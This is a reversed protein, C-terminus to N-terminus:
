KIRISKKSSNFAAFYGLAGNSFNTNPNAPAASTNADGTIIDSLTTLYDYAKDDMSLLEINVTDGTKFFTTFLPADFYQGDRIKDDVLYTDFPKNQLTDNKTVLIRYFNKIGITDQFHTTMLILEEKGGGPGGPGGGFGNFKEYSLSDIQTHLPLQANAEFTKGDATVLLKYTSNAIANFNPLIYWGNGTSPVAYSTNQQDILKVEANNVDPPADTGFYSTTQTIKVKFDHNGEYLNAEIVYAPNADNLNVDIVKQCSSFIILTCIIALSYKIM